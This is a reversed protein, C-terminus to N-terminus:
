LPDRDVEQPGRDSHDPVELTGQDWNWQCRHTSLVDLGLIAEGAIEAIHVECNMPHGDVMLQLTCRGMVPIDQGDVTTLRRDSVELCPRDKAPIQTWVKSSIVTCSAGTDYLFNTSVGQVSGPVYLLDMSGAM